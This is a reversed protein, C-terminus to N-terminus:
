GTDISSFSRPPSLFILAHRITSVSRCTPRRSAPRAGPSATRLPRRRRTGRARGSEAAAVNLGSRHLRRRHHLHLPHARCLAQRASQPLRPLRYSNRGNDVAAIAADAEANVAQRTRRNDAAPPEHRRADTQGSALRQRLMSLGPGRRRRSSYWVTMRVITAGSLCISPRTSRHDTPACVPTAPASQFYRRRIRRADTAMRRNSLLREAARITSLCQLQRRVALRDAAPATRCRSLLSCRGCVPPARNPM